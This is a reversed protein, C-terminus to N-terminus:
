VWEPPRFLEGRKRTVVPNPLQSQAFKSRSIHLHADAKEGLARVGRHPPALVVVEKGFTGRVAAIAPIMDTDGSLLVASDFDGRMADVVMHVAINVDTQKEEPIEINRGCDGEPCRIRRTSYKGEIIELGGHELLARLYKAQRERSGDPKTVRATFYKVGVVEYGRDVTFISGILKRYDLWLYRGWNKARIGHYVNYGDIYAVVRRSRPVTRAM